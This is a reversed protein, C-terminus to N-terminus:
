LKSTRALTAFLRWHYVAIITLASLVILFICSAVTNDIILSLPAFPIAILFCLLTNILQRLYSPRRSPLYEDAIFDEYPFHLCCKTWNYNSDLQEYFLALQASDRSEIYAFWTHLMVPAVLQSNNIIIESIHLIEDENLAEVSDCRRVQKRHSRQKGQETRCQKQKSIFLKYIPQYVLNLQNTHVEKEDVFDASHTYRKLEVLVYVISAVLVGGFFNANFLNSQLITELM